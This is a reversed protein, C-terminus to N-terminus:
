NNAAKEMDQLIQKASDGPSDAPSITQFTIVDAMEPYLGVMRRAILERKQCALDIVQDTDNICITMGYDFLAIINILEDAEQSDAAGQTVVLRERVARDQAAVNGTYAFGAEENLKAFELDFQSGGECMESRLVKALGYRFGYATPDEAGIGILLRYNNNTPDSAFKNDGNFDTYVSAPDGNVTIGATLHIRTGQLLHMMDDPIGQMSRLINSSSIQALRLDFQDVNHTLYGENTGPKVESGEPLQGIVVEVGYTGFVDNMVQEVGAYDEAEFLRADLVAQREQSMAFPTRALEATAENIDKLEFEKVGGVCYQEEPVPVVTGEPSAAPEEGNGRAAQFGQDYGTTRGYGYVGLLALGGVIGGTIVYTATELRNRYNAQAQIVEQESM